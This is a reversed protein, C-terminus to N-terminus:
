APVWKGNTLYGHWRCAKQEDTRDDSLGHPVHGSSFFISPTLTPRERDGNWSWGRPDGPKVGVAHRAGCNPCSLVISTTVGSDRTAWSFDGPREHAGYSAVHRGSVTM